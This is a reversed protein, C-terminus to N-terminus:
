LLSALHTSFEPTRLYGYSKHENGPYDNCVMVDKVQVAFSNPEYDDQLHSDLCVFDDPDSFNVWSGRVCSPTRLKKRDGSANGKVVTLGLPSGMTVLHELVFGPHEPDKGLERLVEYAVITGMSHSVLIIEDDKHTILLQKLRNNIQNRIDPDSYYEGLDELLKQSVSRGLASFLHSHEELWDLPTDLWNGTVKRFRDFLGIKYPKIAGVDAPEYPEDNNEVTLPGEDAYHINAYYAMKLDVSGLSIATSEALGEEVADQWWERLTEQAPKNSRGHICIIIKAM